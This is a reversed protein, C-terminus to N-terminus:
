PEPVRGVRHIRRRELRARIGFVRPLDDIAVDLDDIQGCIKQPAVVETGLERDIVPEAGAEPDDEAIQVAHLRVWRVSLGPVRVRVYRASRLANRVTRVAAGVVSM